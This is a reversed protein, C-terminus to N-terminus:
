PSLATYRCWPRVVRLRTSNDSRPAPIRARRGSLETCRRPEATTGPACRVTAGATRLRLPPRHCRRVVPTSAGPGRAATRRATARGGPASRGRPAPGRCAPRPAVHRDAGPWAADPCRRPASSACRSQPAPPAPCAIGSPWIGTGPPQFRIWIATSSRTAVTSLSLPAPHRNRLSITTPLPPLCTRRFSGEPLGM